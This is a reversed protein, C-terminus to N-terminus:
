SPLIYLTIFLNTCHSEDIPWSMVQQGDGNQILYTKANCNKRRCVAPKTVVTYIYTHAAMTWCGVPGSVCDIVYVYMLVIALWRCELSCLPLLTHVAPTGALCMTRSLMTPLLGTAPEETRQETMQDVTALTHIQWNKTHVYIYM